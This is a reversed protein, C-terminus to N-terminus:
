PCSFPVCWHSKCQKPTCEPSHTAFFVRSRETDTRSCVHSQHQPQAYSQDHLLANSASPPWAGERFTEGQQDKCAAMKGSWAKLESLRCSRHLRRVPPKSSQIREMVSRQNGNGREASSGPLPAPPSQDPALQRQPRPSKRSNAPILSTKM